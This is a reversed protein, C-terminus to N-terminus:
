EKHCEDYLDGIYTNKEARRQIIKIGASSSQLIEASAWKCVRSPYDEQLKECLDGIISYYVAMQLKIKNAKSDYAPLKEVLNNYEDGFLKIKERKLIEDIVNDNNEKIYQTTCDRNLEAAKFDILKNLINKAPAYKKQKLLVAALKNNYEFKEEEGANQIELIELIQNYFYEAGEFCRNKEDEEAKIQLSSLETNDTFFKKRERLRIDRAIANFVSFCSGWMSLVSPKGSGECDCQPFIVKNDKNKRFFLKLSKDTYDGKLAIKNKLIEDQTFVDKVAYLKDSANSRNTLFSRTEEENALVEGIDKGVFKSINAIEDNAPFEEFPYQNTLTDTYSYGVIKDGKRVPSFNYVGRAGDTICTDYAAFMYDKVGGAEKVTVVEADSLALLNFTYWNKNKVEDALNKIKGDTDEGRAIFNYFEPKLNREKALWKLTDDHPHGAPIYVKAGKNKLSNLERIIGYTYEIGQQRTDMYNIFTRYADPNDYIKKLFEMIIQKNAKVTEATLYIDRGTVSKIQDKLNLLPVSALAPVAVYDGKKLTNSKNLKKLEAELSRLQKVNNDFPSVEVDHMEIDMEKEVAKAFHAVNTAHNGGDVIHVPYGMFSIIGRSSSPTIKIGKFSLIAENSVPTSASHEKRASSTYATNTKESKNYGLRFDARYLLVPRIAM